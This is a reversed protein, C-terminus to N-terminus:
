RGLPALSGPVRPPKAELKTAEMRQEYLNLKATAADKEAPVILSVVKLQTEVADQFQENAFYAEALTSLFLVNNPFSATAKQAYDLAANPNRFDASPGLLIIALNNQASAYGKDAAKRFWYVAQNDDRPLGGQGKNYMLGLSNEASEDGKNAAKRFWGVAKAEDKPLGGRGALYMLGLNRMANPEGQDAAKAYWSAAQVDDKSLGGQGEEYMWGLFTQANVLGQDASKRFWIVATAEDKKLGDTGLFYARGLLFQAVREGREARAQLDALGKGSNASGSQAFAFVAFALMLLLPVVKKM